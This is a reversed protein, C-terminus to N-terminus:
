GYLVVLWEGYVDQKLDLAQFPGPTVVVSFILSLAQSSQLPLGSCAMYLLPTMIFLNYNIRFLLSAM